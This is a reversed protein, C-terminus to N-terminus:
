SYYIKAEFKQNFIQNIKKFTQSKDSNFKYNNIIIIHVNHDSKNNDNFNNICLIYIKIHKKIM